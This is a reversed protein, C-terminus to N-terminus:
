LIRRNAELRLATAKFNKIGPSHDPDGTVRGKKGRSPGVEFFAAADM